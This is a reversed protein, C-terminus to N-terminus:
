SQRNLLADCLKPLLSKSKFNQHQWPCSEKGAVSCVESDIEDFASLNGSSISGVAWLLLVFQFTEM